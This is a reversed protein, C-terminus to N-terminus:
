LLNIFCILIRRHFFACSSNCSFLCDVPLGSAQVTVVEILSTVVLYHHNTFGMQHHVMQNILGMQHLIVTAEIAQQSVFGMQHLVMIAAMVVFSDFDMGLDLLLLTRLEVVVSNISTIVMRLDVRQDVVLPSVRVVVQEIVIGVVVHPQLLFTFCYRNCLM